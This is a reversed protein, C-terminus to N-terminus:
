QEKINSVKNEYYTRKCTRCEVQTKNRLEKYLPSDKGLSKLAKQKQTILRRLKNSVLPKDSSCVKVRRLPLYSDIANLLTQSFLDFKESVRSLNLLPSWDFNTIWRGFAHVSSTRLDRSWFDKKSNNHGSLSECPKILVTYHDSRGIKPLQEPDRFLKPKNTLCWDLTGTNRTLVKTIQSLGTRLKISRESIGTTTPNFDTAM